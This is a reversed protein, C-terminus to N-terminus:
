PLSHAFFVAFALEQGPIRIELGITAERDGEESVRLPGLGNLGLSAGPRRRIALIFHFRVTDPSRFDILVFYQIPVGNVVYVGDCIRGGVALLVVRKRFM